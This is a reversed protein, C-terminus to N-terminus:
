LSDRNTVAMSYGTGGIVSIDWDLLHCVYDVLLTDISGSPSQDM